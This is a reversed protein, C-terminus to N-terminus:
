KKAKAKVAAVILLLVLLGGALKLLEYGGMNIVFEQFSM